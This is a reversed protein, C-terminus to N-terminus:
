EARIPLTFYFTSGIGPTSEVWINGGHREVIKKCIALGIGTGAYERRTHLRQFVLFIREFYQPEIGIGNDQVSFQWANEVRKAAIHIQPETINRFKIGNAILNQFLQILQSPDAHVMPLADATIEANSNRIASDLNKVAANLCAKSQVAEIPNSRRGVRSFALLDNILTQMRGAAEVAHDIYEDAREDLRGQYRRQLLQVMGAVARLPEQLDHSAVYAFQELEVNSRRLEEEMQKRATMDTSIGCVAYINGNADFLPFKTTLYVHRGDPELNEEEFIKGQGTEFVELDNNRHQIALELPLFDQRTRGGIEANPFGFLKEIKRNVLIFRGEIDLIYIMASTNDIIDRILNQSSRLEEEAHKRDTIDIVSSIACPIGKWTIPELSALVTRIAGSRMRVTAERIRVRGTAQMEEVAAQREAPNEWLNLRGTTGGVLEEREYEFLRCCADNVAIIENSSGQTIISQAVPSAHFAISFRDESEKLKEEAHKWETIDVIQALMCPEDNIEILEGWVFTHREEGSKQRADAELGRVPQRAQLAEVFRQRAEPNAWLGLETTTRGITEERSWGYLNLFAENAHIIKRDSLRSIGIAIPSNEFITSFRLESKQLALEARKRDTIDQWTTIAHLSGDMTLVTANLIVFRVEGTGTTISIEHNILGGHRELLNLIRKRDEPKVLGLDVTTKGVQEQRTFGNLKEGAENVNTIIGEPLKFVITAVSLKDFLLSFKHESERLKEETRKRETIDRVISILTRVGGVSAGQSSVEVPFTSGDKRRHVTEFLIGRADAQAMQESTLGLTGPARLDRIALELMEDRSYGYAQEAASNAELIHGDERRMFLIIDRSHAALLEFRRLYDEAQKRVTIDLLHTLICAENNFTILEQNAIVHRIAGSRHRISTEFDRVSGRHQLQEVITQRDTPNIYIDFDTTQHGLLEERQYGVIASYADNLELFRGDALRTILLAAPSSQFAISFNEESQRLAEEARKRETIDVHNWMRGYQEGNVVIPVFDRIYTRGRAMALEEGRVPQGNALIERIRAIAATPDAYATSIKRIMESASFGLLEEPVDNLDFLHCFAPNTFEVQNDNNVLLIGGYLSSLIIHFRQYATKLAEEMRKRETIDYTVGIMRLPMGNEDWIVEGNAKLWHISGDPWLVRFETDYELEGRVAAASIEDSADRDEPHVGQLWAEYAGGFEGPKLGYLVYMQDDWVIENEQIDWDWIGVGASRTALDLREALKDRKEEARKRDTVDHITTIVYNQGSIVAKNVNILGIRAQGEKTLLHRENDRLTGLEELGRYAQIREAPLAMGIEASTKGAVEERTYGYVSQFAQNVDAFVGEPMKTLAAPVAANEFLAAYKEESDRLAKEARKRATIDATVIVTRWDDFNMPVASVNTWTTEGNEKVIGTEVNYIATGQKEAQHSAFGDAPMPSENGDLYKRKKYAGKQLDDTNFDLIKLLASNQFVVQRNKDLISIGVPLLDLLKSLERASQQEPENSGQDDGPKKKQLKQELETIRIQAQELELELQAKTKGKSM